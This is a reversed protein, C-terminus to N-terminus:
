LLNNAIHSAVYQALATAGTDVLDSLERGFLIISGYKDSDNIIPFIVQTQYPLDEMIQLFENGDGSCYKVGAEIIKVLELTLQADNSLTVGESHIVGRKDCLLIPVNVQEFFLKMPAKCADKIELMPRHVEFCVKGQDISIELSDGEKIKLTRRLEVPIVVRGLDDIRRTLGTKMDKGRKRLQIWNKSNAENNLKM